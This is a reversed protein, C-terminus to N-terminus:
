PAVNYIRIIGDWTSIALSRNDPSFALGPTQIDTVPLGLDIPTLLTNSAIDWTNLIGALTYYALLSGDDSIAVSWINPAGELSQLLEFTGTRYIEIVGTEGFLVMTSRDRSLRMASLNGGLKESIPIEQLVKGNELDLVQVPHKRGYTLLTKGDPSFDVTELQHKSPIKRLFKGTTLDFLRIAYDDLSYYIVASLSKDPSIAISVPTKKKMEDLVDPDSYISKLSGDQPNLEFIENSGLYDGTYLKLGLGDLAFGLRGAIPLFGQVQHIPNATGSKWMSLSGDNSIGYFTLGDSAAAVAWLPRTAPFTQQPAKVTEVAWVELQSPNTGGMVVWKGDPSFAIASIPDQRKIEFRKGFTSYEWAAITRSGRRTFYGWRFGAPKSLLPAFAGAEWPFDITDADAYSVEQWSTSNLGYSQVGAAVDQFIYYANKAIPDFEIWLPTQTNNVYQELVKEVKGDPLHIVLITGDESVAAVQQNDPSLDFDIISLTDKTTQAELPVQSLLGGTSLDWLKLNTRYNADLSFGVALTGDRSIRVGRHYPYVLLNTPTYISILLSLDDASFVFIGAATIAILHKEDASLQLSSYSLWPGTGFGFQRAFSLTGRPASPTPPITATPKPTPTETAPISTPTAPPLTAPITPPEIPTKTALPTQPGTCASLLLSIILILFMSSRTKMKLEQHGIFINAIFSLRFNPTKLLGLSHFIGPAAYARANLNAKM